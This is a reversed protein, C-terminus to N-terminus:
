QGLWIKRIEESVAAASPPTGDTDTGILLDASPILRSNTEVPFAAAVIVYRFGRQKLKACINEVQGGAQDTLLGYQCVPYTVIRGKFQSEIPYLVDRLRELSETAQYPMEDGTLGTVPLVATDLYPQLEAWQEPTLESFKM